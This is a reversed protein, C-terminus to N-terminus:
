DNDDEENSLAQDLYHEVAKLSIIPYIKHFEELIAELSNCLFSECGKATLDITLGEKTPIVKIKVFHERSNCSKSM